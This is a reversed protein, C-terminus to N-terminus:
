LRTRGIGVPKQTHDRTNLRDLEPQDVLRWLTQAGALDIELRALTCRVKKLVATGDEVQDIATPRCRNGVVNFGSFGASKTSRVMVKESSFRYLSYICM